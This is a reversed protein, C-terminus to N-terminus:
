QKGDKRVMRYTVYAMALTVLLMVSHRQAYYDINTNMAWLLGIVNGTIGILSVIFLVTWSLARNFLKTM